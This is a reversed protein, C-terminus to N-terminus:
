MNGSGAIIRQCYKTLSAARVGGPQFPYSARISKKGSSARVVATLRYSKYLLLIGLPTV